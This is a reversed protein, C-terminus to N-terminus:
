GPTEGSNSRVNVKGGGREVLAKLSDLHGSAAAFHVPTAGDSDPQDADGGAELLSVLAEDHGHYACVHLPTAGREDGERALPSAKALIVGLAETDGRRAAVHALTATGGGSRVGLITEEDNARLIERLCGGHGAHLAAMAPCPEVRCEHCAEGVLLRVGDEEEEDEEGESLRDLFSDLDGLVLEAASAM